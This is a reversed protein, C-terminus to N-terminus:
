NKHTCAIKAMAYDTHGIHLTQSKQRIAHALPYSVHWPVRSHVQVQLIIYFRDNSCKSCLISESEFNLRIGNNHIFFPRQSLINVLKFICSVLLECVCYENGDMCNSM